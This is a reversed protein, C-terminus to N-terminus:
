ATGEETLADVAVVDRLFGRQGLFDALHGRHDACALWVKRREPAHLRPNNWRLAWAASASCGRRSCLLEPADSAPTDSDQSHASRAPRSLSGLLDMPSM